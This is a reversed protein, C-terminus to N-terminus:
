NAKSRFCSARCANVTVLFLVIFTTTHAMFGLIILLPAAIFAMKSADQSVFWETFKLPAAVWVSIGEETYMEKRCDSLYKCWMRHPMEFSHALWQYSVQTDLGAIKLNASNQFAVFCSVVFGNVVVSGSPTFPAYAGPKSIFTISRVIEPNGTASKLADGVKVNSAPLTRGDELYVMHDMSVELFRNSTVLRVYTASVSPARHGFSYVPEYKGGQVLVKDGLMLDGIMVSGKDELQVIADGPFCIGGVTGGPPKTAALNATCTKGLADTGCGLISYKLDLISIFPCKLGQQRTKIFNGENVVKANAKQVTIVGYNKTPSNFFCNQRLTLTGRSFFDVLSRYGQFSCIM